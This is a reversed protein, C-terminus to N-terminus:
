GRSTRLTGWRGHGSVVRLGGIVTRGAMFVGLGAWIARLGYAPAGFHMLAFAPLASGVMVLCAGPWDSGGFLVGDVAFALTNLPQTLVVLPWALSCAALVLPDSSFVSCLVRGGALALGAATVLGVLLGYLLMSRVIARARKGGDARGLATALLSQGAIAVADALLSTALWLQLMIQHAAGSAAGLTAAVVSASSLLGSVALTRLTLVGGARFTAVCDDLAPQPMGLFRPSSDAGCADGCATALRRWLLAAAAYQALTTALAAGFVGGRAVVILLPDLIINLGSALSLAGLPTVTDRAGRFAGQLAMLSLTAPAALARAVLYRRAPPLLPSSSTGALGLMGLLAGGSAILSLAVVTGVVVAVALAAAAQRTMDHTFTGAPTGEDAAAAVASTTASSLFNFSRSVLNFISIAVGAGALDAASCFRGVMATDVLSAIPDIALGVLAPAGIAFMERELRKQEHASPFSVDDDPTFPADGGAVVRHRSAGAGAKPVHAAMWAAAHQSHLLLVLLRRAMIEPPDSNERCRTRTREATCKHNLLLFLDCMSMSM